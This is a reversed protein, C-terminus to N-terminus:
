QHFASMRSIPVFQWDMVRSTSGLFTFRSSTIWFQDIQSSERQHFGLNKVISNM